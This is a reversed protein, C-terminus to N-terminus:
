KNSEEFDRNKYLSTNALRIFKTWNGESSDSLIANKYANTKASLEDAHYLTIAELTKPEVPSAFELKGQHSLILHLLQNKLEEPFWEIKAAAKEVEIAAIVIHGLLRGKDTYDFDMSASLEQTKGFDHLIAGTTLLDRNLEPHVDCMLDCIKIVELTHELLGHLYSHHWSKGAPKNLFSEYRKGKLIQRLLRKLYENQIKEIREFLEKQMENFDRKSKKVLGELATGGPDSFREANKVEIQLAGNFSKVIGKVKAVMGSFATKQFEEFGDWFKGSISGTKDSFELDLYDNNARTKKIEIRKLLFLHDILDGAKLNIIEKQM